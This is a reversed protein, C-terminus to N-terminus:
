SGGSYKRLLLKITSIISFLGVIYLVFLFYIFDSLFWLSVYLYFHAVNFGLPIRIMYSWIAKSSDVAEKKQVNSNQRKQSALILKVRQDLAYILVLGVVIWKETLAEAIFYGMGFLIIVELTGLFSDLIRGFYSTRNVMRAYSGDAFDLILALQTGLIFILMYINYTSKEGYLGFVIISVLCSIFGIITIINPNFTRFHKNLLKATSEGLFRYIGKLGIEKDRM